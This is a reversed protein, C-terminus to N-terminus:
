RLGCRQPAPSVELPSLAVGGVALSLIRLTAVVCSDLKYAHSVFRHGRPRIESKQGAEGPQGPPDWEAVSLTLLGPM